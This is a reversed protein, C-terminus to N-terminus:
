STANSDEKLPEMKEHIAITMELFAKHIIDRSQDLSSLVDNANPPVPVTESVTLDLLVVPTDVAAGVPRITGDGVQVSMRKSTNAVPILLNVSTSAATNAAYLNKLAAPPDVSFKLVNQMFDAPTLGEMTEPPFGNIYRLSLGTLPQDKEQAPRSALLAKVGKEVTPRFESWRKYPQLANATFIGPGVQLLAAPASPDRFRWVIQQWVSPFGSPVLKEAHTFTAVEPRRGFSLLFGDPDAGGLALQVQGMATAGVGAPLWRLEAIIEILPARQFSVAKM